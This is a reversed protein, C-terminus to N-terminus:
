RGPGRRVRNRYEILEGMVSPPKILRQLTLEAPVHQGINNAYAIQTQRLFRWASEYNVRVRGGIMLSGRGWEFRLLYLLSQSHMAVDCTEEPVDSEHLGEVLDFM